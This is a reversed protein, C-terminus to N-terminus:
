RSRCRRRWSPAGGRRRARRVRGGRRREGQGRARRTARGGCRRGPLVRVHDPAVAVEPSDAVPVTAAGAPPRGRDVGPVVALRLRHGGRRGRPPATFTLTVEAGTITMAGQDRRRGARASCRRWPAPRTSTASSGPPAAPPSIRSPSPDPPSPSASSASRRARRRRGQPHRRHRRRPGERVSAGLSAAGRMAGIRLLMARDEDDSGFGGFGFRDFLGVRSLKLRAGDHLNGTGLGVAAGAAAAADLAAEIGAHVRAQSTPLEEALADLYAALLDDIAEPTPPVGIAELGARAIARDTMGGFRIAACADRRAHRREFAREISRRGAGGSDMLTGDIDFLLVTPKM